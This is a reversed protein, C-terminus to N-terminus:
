TQAQIPVMSRRRQQTLVLHTAPFIETSSAKELSTQRLLRSTDRTAICKNQSRNIRNQDRYKLSSSDLDLVSTEVCADQKGLRRGAATQLTRCSMEPDRVQTSVPIASRVSDHLVADGASKPSLEDTRLAAAAFAAALRRNLLKSTTFSPLNTNSLYKLPEVSLSKVSTRDTVFLM